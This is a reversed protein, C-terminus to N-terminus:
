GAAPVDSREADMVERVSYESGWGNPIRGDDEPDLWMVGDVSFLYVVRSPSLYVTTTWNDDEARRMPHVAPNWGNFSGVVSVTRGTRALHAPFRFTVPLLTGMCRRQAESVQQIQIGIPEAM